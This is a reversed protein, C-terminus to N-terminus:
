KEMVCSDVTVFPHSSFSHTAHVQVDRSAACKKGPDRVTSPHTCHEGYQYRVLGCFSVAGVYATPSIILIIIATVFRRPHKPSALDALDAAIATWPSGAIPKDDSQFPALSCHLRCAECPSERATRSRTPVLPKRGVQFAIVGYLLIYCRVFTHRHLGYLAVRCVIPHICILGALEHSAPGLLLRQM